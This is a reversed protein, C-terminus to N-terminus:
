YVWRQFQKRTGVTTTSHYKCRSTTKTTTQTLNPTYSRGTNNICSSYFNANENANSGVSSAIATACDSGYNSATTKANGGRRSYTRKTAKELVQNCLDTLDIPLKPRVCCCVCCFFCDTCASCCCCQVSAACTQCINVTLAKSIHRLIFASFYM